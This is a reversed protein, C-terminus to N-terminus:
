EYTFNLRRIMQKGGYTNTFTQTMVTLYGNSDYNYDYDYKYDYKAVGDVATKIKWETVHLWDGFNERFIPESSYIGAKSYDVTIEFNTVTIRDEITKVLKNDIYTIKVYDKENDITEVFIKDGVYNYTTKTEKKGVRNEVSADPSDSTRVSQNYQYSGEQKILRGIEDYSLNLIKGYKDTIKTIYGKSDLQYVDTPHTKAILGDSDNYNFNSTIIFNNTSSSKSDISSLRGKSNYSFKTETIDSKVENGTADKTITAADIKLISKLNDKKPFLKVAPRLIKQNPLRPDDIEPTNPTPEQPEVVEPKTPTPDQPNSDENSSCSIFLTSTTFLLLVTIKKM